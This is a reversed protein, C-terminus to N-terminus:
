CVFLPSLLFLCGLNAAFVSDVTCFKVIKACCLQSLVLLFVIYGYFKDIYVTPECVECARHLSKGECVCRHCSCM